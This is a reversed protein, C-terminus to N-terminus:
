ANVIPWSGETIGMIYPVAMRDFKIGYVADFGPTGMYSSRIISSGDNAIQAVFGDTNGNQYSGQYVGTKNGPFNSSATSGGVFIDNTVPNVAIVFAGDDGSGGLYSSWLVNNCTPDIKMVVGDQSGGSATQFVPGITKLDGSRTQAAVYVFGANDMTVESRSDDGYFHLTTLLNIAGG